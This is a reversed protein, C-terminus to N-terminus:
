EQGSFITSLAADPASEVGAIDCFFRRLSTM